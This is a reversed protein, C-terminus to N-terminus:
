SRRNEASQRPEFTFNNTANPIVDMANAIAYFDAKSIELLGKRLQMGWNKGQTLELLNFLEHLPADKSPAYKVDIRFPHFEPTMEVQYVKGTTITGLATFCQCPKNCYMAIKPSYYIFGDGASLHLLPAKKGHCVQAFGGQVGRQVHEKSVIGLWYHM